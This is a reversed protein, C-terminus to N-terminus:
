ARAGATVLRQLDDLEVPKTLHADFGGALAAVQDELRGRGSVAVLRVSRGWRQERIRRAVEQGSLRPLALDMFVVHPKFTEITSLAEIGDHALRVEVGVSELAAALVRAQDVEDDVVVSRVLAPVDAPPRYAAALISPASSKSLPARRVMEPELGLFVRFTSGRGLGESSAEVRGSHLGVLEQVLALGIGFGERSGESLPAVQSFLEFIHHLNDESVGIGPDQVTLVAQDGSRTLGLGIRAGDPSYRSANSLLNFMVQVLRASDGFVFFPGTDIRVEVQQGKLETLPEVAEAAELLVDQLDVPALRISLHGHSVRNMDCVDEVLRHLQVVQRHAIGALKRAVPSSDSLTQLQDTAVLLPALPGRLEHALTSLFRDLKALSVQSAADKTRLQGLQARLGHERPTDPRQEPAVQGLVRPARRFRAFRAVLFGALAAVLAVLALIWARDLTAVGIDLGNPQYM